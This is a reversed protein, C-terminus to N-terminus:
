PGIGCLQRARAAQPSASALKAIEREAEARRGLACLAQARAARREESLLGKPFKSQHENLVKLADDARGTRLANTARSLLTVEENLRDSARKTAAAAPEVAQPSVAAATPAVAPTPAPEQAPAPTHVVAPPVRPAVLSPEESRLGVALGGAALGLGVTVASVKVWLASFATPAAAAHGLMAADGLRGRLAEFIRERDSDSPRAAKAAGRVLEQAAQSLDSM